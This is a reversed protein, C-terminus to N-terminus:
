KVTTESGGNVEETGAGEAVVAVEVTEETATEGDALPPVVIGTVTM